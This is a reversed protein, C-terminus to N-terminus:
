MAYQMYYRYNNNEETITWKRMDKCWKCGDNKAEDKLNYPINLYIKEKKRNYEKILNKIERINENDEYLFWKKKDKNWFVGKSKITDKM